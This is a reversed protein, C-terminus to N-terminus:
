EEDSGIELSSCSLTWLAQSQWSTAKWRYGDIQPWDSWPWVWEHTRPQRPESLPDYKWHGENEGSTQNHRAFAHTAVFLLEGHWDWQKDCLHLREWVGLERGRQQRFNWGSPKSYEVSNSFHHKCVITTKCQARERFAIWRKSRRLNVWTSSIRWKTSKRTPLQPWMLTTQAMFRESMSIIQIRSPSTKWINPMNSWEVRNWSKKHTKFQVRNWIEM